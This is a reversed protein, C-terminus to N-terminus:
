AAQFEPQSAEEDVAMRVPLRGFTAQLEVYWEGYLTWHDGQHTTEVFGCITNNGPEAESSLLLMGKVAEIYFGQGLSLRNIQAERARRNKINQQLTAITLGM